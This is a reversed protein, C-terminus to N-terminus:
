QVPIAELAEADLDLADTREGPDDSCFPCVLRSRYSHPYDVMVGNEPCRFVYFLLSGGWGPRTRYGVYSSGFVALRIRQSLTLGESREDLKM